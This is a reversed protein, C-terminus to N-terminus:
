VVSVRSLTIMRTGKKGGRDRVVEIGMRRLNPALRALQKSCQNAGKPWSRDKQTEFSTQNTLATLLASATGAWKDRDDMLSLVAQGIAQAEIAIEDLESRNMDFADAFAGREWNLNAGAAEVWM